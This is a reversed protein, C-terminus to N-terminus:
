PGLDQPFQVAQAGLHRRRHSAGRLRIGGVLRFPSYVYFSTMHDNTHRGLTLALPVKNAHVIDYARGVDNLSRSEFM